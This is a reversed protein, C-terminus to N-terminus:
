GGAGAAAVPGSRHLGTMLPMSWESAIGESFNVESRVGSLADHNIPAILM